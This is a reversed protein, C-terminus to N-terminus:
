KVGQGLLTTNVFDAIAAIFGSLNAGSGIVMGILIIWVLLWAARAGIMGALSVASVSITLAILFRGFSLGTLGTGSTGGSGGVDAM